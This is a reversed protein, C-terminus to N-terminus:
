GPVSCTLSIPQTSLLSKWRACPPGPCSRGSFTARRAWASVLLLWSYFPAQWLAMTLLGYFLTMALHGPLLPMTTSALGVPMLAITTILLILLQTVVVAVFTVLPLIVLPITLKAMVTAFDSVPLSKWFLISRDRREGHLADLCYFVGVFFATFMVMAAVANYPMQIAARRRVPDLLLATHRLTPLNRASLIFAFLAVGAAILPALYISRNEWLERRVSWSFPRITSQSASDTNM